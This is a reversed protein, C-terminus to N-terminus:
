VHSRHLKSHSVASDAHEHLRHCESESRHLKSHSLQYTALNFRSCVLGFRGVQNQNRGTATKDAVFKYGVQLARLRCGAPNSPADVSSGGLAVAVVAAMLAAMLVAVLVPM